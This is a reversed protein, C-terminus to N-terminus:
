KRKIMVYAAYERPAADRPYICVTFFITCLTGVRHSCAGTPLTQRERQIITPDDGNYDGM